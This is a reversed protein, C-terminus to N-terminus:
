HAYIPYYQWVTELVGDRGGELGRSQVIDNDLANSVKRKGKKEM